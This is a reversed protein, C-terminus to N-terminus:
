NVSRKPYFRRSFARFTFTYTLMLVIYNHFLGYNTIRGWYQPDAQITEREGHMPKFEEKDVDTRRTLPM